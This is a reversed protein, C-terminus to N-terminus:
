GISVGNENEQNNESSQTQESDSENCIKFGFVHLLDFVAMLAVRRVDIQDVQM